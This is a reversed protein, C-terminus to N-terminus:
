ACNDTVRFSQAEDLINGELIKFMDVQMIKLYKCENQVLTAQIKYNDNCLPQKLKSYKKPEVNQQLSLM